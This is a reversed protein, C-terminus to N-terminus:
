IFESRRLFDRDGVWAKLYERGGKGKGEKGWEAFFGGVYISKMREMFLVTIERIDEFCCRVSLLCDISM